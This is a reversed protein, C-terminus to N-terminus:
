KRLDMNYTLKSIYNQVSTDSSMNQHHDGKQYLIHVTTNTLISLIRM